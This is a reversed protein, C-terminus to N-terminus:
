PIPDQSKPLKLRRTFKTDLAQGPLKRDAFTVRRETESNWTEMIVSTWDSKNLPPMGWKLSMQVTISSLKCHSSSSNKALAHSTLHQICADDRWGHDVILSVMEQRDTIGPVRPESCAVALCECQLDVVDCQQMFFVAGLSFLSEANWEGRLRSKVNAMITIQKTSALFTPFKSTPFAFLLNMFTAVCHLTQM